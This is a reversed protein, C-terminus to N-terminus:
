PYTHMISGISLSPISKFRRTLELVEHLIEHTNKHSRTQVGETKKNKFFFFVEMNTWKYWLPFDFFLFFMRGGELPRSEELMFMGLTELAEATKKYKVKIECVCKKEGKNVCCTHNKQWSPFRRSNSYKYIMRLIGEKKVACKNEWFGKMKVQIHTLFTFHVVTMWFLM